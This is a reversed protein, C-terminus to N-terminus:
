DKGIAERMLDRFYEPDANVKAAEEEILDAAAPDDTRLAKIRIGLGHLYTKQQEAMAIALERDIENERLKHEDHIEVLWKKFKLKGDLEPGMRNGMSMRQEVYESIEREFAQHHISELNVGMHSLGATKFDTVNKALAAAHKTLEPECRKVMVSRAHAFFGPVDFKPQPGTVPEPTENETPSEAVVPAIETEMPEPDAAAPDPAPEPAPRTRAPKEPEAVVSAPPTPEPAPTSVPETGAAPANSDNTLLFAVAGAVLLLAVVFGVAGKSSSQATQLPRVPKRTAGPSATRVVKPGASDGIKRLADAIQEASQYRQTPSPHTAKRVVMDFRPDCRAILSAPRPDSGPLQGTLLEHLLVGLSFIDARQDMTHPPQLVEPATYGPTGFIAEGEEVRADLPRALGFDGIKPQLRADLLINAPKIDRHLIGHQHAHAVGESIGTMLRIVEAPDVACGQSAHYLSQGPVYEMVIFLMGNIEGFDYVSILNPHNLKAMAKAEAGFSECFEPDKGFEVPLIKLAVERDLSTQIAHYVAGMGGTAILSLIQYKPFLPALEGPTPARFGHESESM